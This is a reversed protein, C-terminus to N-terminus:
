VKFGGSAKKMQAQTFSVDAVVVVRFILAQGVTPGVLREYSLTRQTSWKTYDDYNLYHM